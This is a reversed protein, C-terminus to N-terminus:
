SNIDRTSVKRTTTVEYRRGRKETDTERETNTQRNTPRDTERQREEM